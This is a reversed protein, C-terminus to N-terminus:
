KKLMAITISEKKMQFTSRSLSFLNPFYTEETAEITDVYPDDDYEDGEKEEESSSNDSIDTDDSVDTDLLYEVYKIKPKFSYL